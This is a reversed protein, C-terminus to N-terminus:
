GERDWGRPRPCPGPVQGPLQLHPVHEGAASGLILPVPALPQAPAAFTESRAAPCPLSEACKWRQPFPLLFIVSSAVAPAAALIQQQGLLSRPWPRVLALCCGCRVSSSPCCGSPHPSAASVLPGRGPALLLVVAQLCIRTKKAHQKAKFSKPFGAGFLRPSQRPFCTSGPIQSLFCVPDSPGRLHPILRRLSWCCGGALCLCPRPPEEGEHGRALAKVECCFRGQDGAVGLGVRAALSPRSPSVPAAPVPPDMPLRGWAAGSAAAIGLRHSCVAPALAAFGRRARSLPEAGACARM